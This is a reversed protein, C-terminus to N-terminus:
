TFEGEVAKFMDARRALNVDRPVSMNEPPKGPNQVTFPAYTMGLFGPGIRGATGGVSVFAPLAMDKPALQQAVVSGVHPYQTLPNPSRGTNMLTTGRMHDGESTERSR